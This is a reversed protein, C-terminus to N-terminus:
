SVVCQHILDKSIQFLASSEGPVGAIAVFACDLMANGARFRLLDEEIMRMKEQFIGPVAPEFLADVCESFGSGSSRQRQCKRDPFLLNTDNGGSVLVAFFQFGIAQLTLVRHTRGSFGCLVACRSRVCARGAGAKGLSLGLVVM